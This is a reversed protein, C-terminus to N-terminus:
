AAKSGADAAGDSRLADALKRDRAPAFRALLEAFPNPAGASDDSEVDNASTPAPIDREVVTVSNANLIVLHERGDCNLIVARRRQDLPLAEVIQLRKRAGVLGARNVLGAKKAALAALGIMGLVAILAFVIRAIDVPTMCPKKGNQFWRRM